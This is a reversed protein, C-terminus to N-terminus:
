FNKRVIMRPTFLQVFFVLISQIVELVFSAKNKIAVRQNQHGSGGVRRVTHAAGDDVDTM